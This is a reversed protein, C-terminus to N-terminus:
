NALMVVQLRHPHSPTIIIDMHSFGAPQQQDHHKHGGEAQKSGYKRPDSGHRISTDGGGGGWVCVCACM